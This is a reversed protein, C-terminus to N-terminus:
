GRHSTVREDREANGHEHVEHAREHEHDQLDGKSWGCGTAEEVVEEHAVDGQHGGHGMDHSGGEHGGHNAAFSAVPAALAFLAAILVTMKNM